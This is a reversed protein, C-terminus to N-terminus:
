ALGEQPADQPRWATLLLLLSSEGAEICSVSDVPLVTFLSPLELMNAPGFCSRAAAQLAAQAERLSYPQCGCFCRADAVDIWALNAEDLAEDMWALIGELATRLPASVGVPLSAQCALFTGPSTLSACVGVDLTVCARRLSGPWRPWGGALCGCCRIVPCQTRGQWQQLCKGPARTPLSSGSLSRLPPWLRDADLKPLSPLSCNSAGPEQAM